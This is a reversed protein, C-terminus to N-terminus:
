FAPAIAAPSNRWSPGRPTRWSRLRTGSAAAKTWDLSAELSAADALVRDIRQPVGNDFVEFDQVQLGAISKRGDTALVDIRVLETCASFVPQQELHPSLASMLSIFILPLTKM